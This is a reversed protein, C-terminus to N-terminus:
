PVLDRTSLVLYLGSWGCSLWIAVPILLASGIIAALWGRGAVSRFYALGVLFTPASGRLLWFRLPRPNLFWHTLREPDLGLRIVSPNAWTTSPEPVVQFGGYAFWAGFLYGIELLALWPAFRLLDRWLKARPEGPSKWAAVWITLAGFLMWWRLM